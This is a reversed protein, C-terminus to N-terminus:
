VTPVAIPQESEASDFALDAVLEDLEPLRGDAELAAVHILENYLESCDPCGALHEQLDTFEGNPNQNRVFADVYAPLREVLERCSIDKEVPDYVKDLWEKLREKYIL